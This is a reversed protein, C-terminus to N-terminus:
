RAYMRRGKNETKCDGGALHSVWGSGAQQFVVNELDVNRQVGQMDLQVSAIEVQVWVRNSMTGRMVYKLNPDHSAM